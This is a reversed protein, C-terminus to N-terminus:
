SAAKDLGKGSALDNQSGKKQESSPSPKKTYRRTVGKSIGKKDLIDWLLERDVNDFAAKLDVFVAYIKDKKEIKERQILHSM